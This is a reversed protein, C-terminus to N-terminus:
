CRRTYIVTLATLVPVHPAPTSSHQLSFLLEQWSLNQAGGYSSCLDSAMKFYCLHTFFKSYALKIWRCVSDFWSTNFSWKLVTFNTIEICILLDM